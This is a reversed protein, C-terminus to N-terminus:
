ARLIKRLAFTIEKQDAESLTRVEFFIKQEEMRAVIAPESARLAAAVADLSRDGSFLSVAYSPLHKMPAVGGGIFNQTAELKWIETPFEQQLETKWREATKRLQESTKSLMQLVPIKEHTGKLYALFTAELGSYIMKDVRLARLLPNKRLRDIYIKKGAVIGAQPGGLIKDGSFSILDIGQALEEKAQPENAIGYSELDLLIGSGHDLVVPVHHEQGLAVIEHLQPKETFGVVQFNSPHVVLLMATESTIAARYDEIRTKNTTGIERLITGSKRMIEPLRFSGGIEILEGRSVIVEKGEAITNLILLLAAANNNVVLSLEVGLLEGLIQELHEDRSGRQGSELDMELNSYSSSIEVLHDVAEESLPARGLNTHVIIGTANIVRKLSFQHLAELRREIAMLLLSTEPLARGERFASRVEAVEQRIAKVIQERSYENRWSQNEVLNLVESVSPIERM